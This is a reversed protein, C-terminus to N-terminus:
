VPSCLRGNNFVYLSSSCSLSAISDILVSFCSASYHLLLHWFFARHSCLFTRISSGLVSIKLPVGIIEQIKINLWLGYAAYM